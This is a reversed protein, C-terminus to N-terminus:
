KRGLRSRRQHYRLAVERGSEISEYIASLLELSRRGELGDVLSPGMGRVAQVVNELYARHGFGYVDKPNDNHDPSSALIDMAAKDEFEWTKVENVAFGGIEVTGREGLISLSGELNKPRAATTAEVIGIAGNQFDILASGTDDCEIDALAARSRAFVSVPNGLFWQLLDVHHSAQNAFVGGDMAWTGRWADQDYYHQDRRWRVRVSGMVLKGFHGAEFAQRLLQVPRNYRNQKVVFLKVGAADCAEIMRDADELTLAMPKEVVVHKGARAVEVVHDAHNGSETLVCVVDIEDGAAADMEAFTDFSRVSYPHCLDRARSGQPDCGAVLKAGRIAGGGLLSAHREAIRGCGMLAFGLEEAM